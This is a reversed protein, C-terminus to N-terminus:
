YFQENWNTDEINGYLKDYYKSIYFLVVHKGRILWMKLVSRIDILCQFNTDSYGTTEWWLIGHGSPQTHM